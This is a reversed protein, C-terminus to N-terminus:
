REREDENDEPKWCIYLTHFYPEPDGIDCHKEEEVTYGLRGLEEVLMDKATNDTQNHISLECLYLGEKVAKNIVSEAREMYDRYQCYYKSQKWAEKATIM